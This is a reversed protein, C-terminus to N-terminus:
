LASAEKVLVAGYKLGPATLKWGSDKTGTFNNGKEKMYRSHNSNDYCGFTECLARADKDAFTAEGSSLLGAIGALVYAKITKESNNKGSVEPAIVTATGSSFDFVQQLQDATLANQKMWSRARMPLEGIQAIEEVGSSKESAINTPKEKLVVLSAEIVRHRDESDLPGLVKVLQSIAALMEEAELM